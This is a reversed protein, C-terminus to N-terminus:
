PMREPFRPIFGDRNPMQVKPLTEANMVDDEAIIDNLALVYATVAYVEEDTLTRPQLWPMARRTFDFLTTAYPWFNAVTKGTDIGNTLPEGGVLASNQGGEGNVGHCVACKEAFISAGQAATGSGPPLGTGDPMITLSWPEIDAPSIPQGLNPGQALAASSGLAVAILVATGRHRPTFM